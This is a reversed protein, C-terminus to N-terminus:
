KELFEKIMLLDQWALRKKDSQRMLYSPHFLITTKIPNELYHNQYDFFKGRMKSIPDKFKMIDAMATAGMLVILKPKMLFIHKEVFPKCMALEDETPKRNGPPRWFLTNTIYLNERSIGIAKFMENLLKGSDGCFPIGQLDEHNGPAEGIIMIKSDSSGDSFVTNTAMKKLACGEFDKVAKELGKLTTSSEAAKKATEVIQSISMLSQSNDFDGDKQATKKKQALKSIANFTSINPAFNGNSNGNSNDNATSNLSITNDDLAPKSINVIQPEKKNEPIIKEISKRDPEKKDLRNISKELIIEDIGDELYIELLKEKSM